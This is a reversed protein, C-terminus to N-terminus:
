SAFPPIAVSPTPPLHSPLFLALIVCSLLWDAVTFPDHSRSFRITRSSCSATSLYVGGWSERQTERATHPSSTKTSSQWAVPKKPGVPRPVGSCKLKICSTSM